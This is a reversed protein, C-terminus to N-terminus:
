APYSGFDLVTEMFIVENNDRTEVPKKEFPLQRREFIFKIEVVKV